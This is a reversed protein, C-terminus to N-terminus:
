SQEESGGSSAAPENGPFRALPQSLTLFRANM